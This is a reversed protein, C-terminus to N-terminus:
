SLWWVSFVILCWLCTLAAVVAIALAGAGCGFEEHMDGHDLEGRQEGHAHRDKRDVSM